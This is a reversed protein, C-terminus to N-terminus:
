SKMRNGQEEHIFLWSCIKGINIEEFNNWYDRTKVHASSTEEERIAESEKIHDRLRDQGRKMSSVRLDEWGENAWNYMNKKNVDLVNEGSCDPIKIIRGC